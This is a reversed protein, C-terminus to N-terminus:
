ESAGVIEGDFSLENNSEMGETHNDDIPIKQMANDNNQLRINSFKSYNPTLVASKKHGPQHFPKQFSRVSNVFQFMPIM